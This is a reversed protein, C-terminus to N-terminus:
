PYPLGGVVCGIGSLCRRVGALTRATRPRAARIGIADSSSASCMM